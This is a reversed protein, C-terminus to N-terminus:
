KIKLIAQKILESSSYKKPLPLIVFDIDLLRCLDEEALNINDGIRDGSNFFILKNNPHIQKIYEITKCVTSDVDKSIIVHDTYILSSMIKARHIEDMFPISGKLEVQKDNNVIVVLIGCQERSASIYDVHGAHLPNFYGSVIGIKM